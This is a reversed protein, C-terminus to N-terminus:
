KAPPSLFRLIEALADAPIKADKIEDDGVSIPILEVKVVAKQNNVAEANLADIKETRKPDKEDLKQARNSIAQQVAEYAEVAPRLSNINLAANRTNAATTGAQLVRLSTFLRAAESNTLSVNAAAASAACTLVALILTIYKM